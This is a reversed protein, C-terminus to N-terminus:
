LLIVPSGHILIQFTIKLLLIIGKLHMSLIKFLLRFVRAGNQLQHLLLQVHSRLTLGERITDVLVKLHKMFVLSLSQTNM